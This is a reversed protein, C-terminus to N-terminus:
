SLFRISIVNFRNTLQSREIWLGSSQRGNKCDPIERMLIKLNDADPGTCATNSKQRFIKFAM